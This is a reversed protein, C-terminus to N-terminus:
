LLIHSGYVTLAAFGSGLCSGILVDSPYHLALYMRSFAVLCAIPFFIYFLFAEHLIFTATVSFIATSHGSPFSFDTLPNPFTNLESIKLYPRLRPLYKKILVVALHSGALAILGEVAWMRSEAGSFILWCILFTLTATAGGLHTLRPMLVDFLQCKWQRNLYSVITGDYEVLRAVLSKMKGLGRRIV